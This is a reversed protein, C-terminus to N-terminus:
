NRLQELYKKATQVYHKASQAISSIEEDSLERVVKAPSGMVLTGSPYTKGPPVVSGAAVLTGSKIHAKDLIIAGMGILCNDEITCAHIIANHGVTVDSGILCPAVDSTVHVVSNDQINTRNGIRVHHEDGRVVTNFWISSHDGITVDGIVQGGSCVLADNGLQPVTTGYAIVNANLMIKAM